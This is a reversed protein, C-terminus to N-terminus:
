AKTPLTLHTYSVAGIPLKNAPESKTYSLVTGLAKASPRLMAYMIQENWKEGTIIPRARMYGYMFLQKDTQPYKKLIEYVKKVGALRFGIILNEDGIIAVGYKKIRRM